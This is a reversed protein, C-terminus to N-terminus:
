RGERGQHMHRRADARNRWKRRIREIRTRPKMAMYAVTLALGGVICAGIALAVFGMTSMREGSPESMSPATVVIVVAATTILPASNPATSDAPERTPAQAPAQAPVQAPAQTPTASPSVTETPTPTSTQIPTATPNPTPTWTATPAAETIMARATARAAAVVSTAAECAPQMCQARAQSTPMALLALLAMVAASTIMLVLLIGSREGKHM